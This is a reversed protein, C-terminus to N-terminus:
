FLSLFFFLFRLRLDEHQEGNPEAWFQWSVNIKCLDTSFFVKKFAYLHKVFSVILSDQLKRWKTRQANPEKIIVLLPFSFLRQFFSIWTSNRQISSEPIIKYIPIFVFPIFPLKASILWGSISKQSQLKPHTLWCSM